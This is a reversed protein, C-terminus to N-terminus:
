IFSTSEAFRIRNRADYKLAETNNELANAMNETFEDYSEVSDFTLKCTYELTDYGSEEISVLKGSNVFEQQQKHDDLWFKLYPQKLDDYTGQRDGAKIEGNVIDTWCDNDENYPGAGYITAWWNPKDEFGLMMWPNNVHSTLPFSWKIDLSPRTITQTALFKM